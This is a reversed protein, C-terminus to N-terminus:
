VKQITTAAEEPDIRPPGRLQAMKEREEQNRFLFHLNMLLPWLGMAEDTADNNHIM